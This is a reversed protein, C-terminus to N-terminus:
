VIKIGLLEEVSTDLVDSSKKPASCHVHEWCNYSCFGDDIDNSDITYEVGCVPNLCKKQQPSM